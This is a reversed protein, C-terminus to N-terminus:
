QRFPMHGRGFTVVTSYGDCQPCGRNKMTGTGDCLSCISVEGLVNRSNLVFGRGEIEELLLGLLEAGYENEISELPVTDGPELDSLLRELTLTTNVTVRGSFVTAHIPAAVLCFNSRGSPSADSAIKIGSEVPHYYTHVCLM